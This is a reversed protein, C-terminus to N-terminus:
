PVPRHLERDLEGEYKRPNESDGYRRYREYRLEFTGYKDFTIARDYYYSDSNPDQPAATDERNCLPYAGARRMLALWVRDSPLLERVIGDTESAKAEFGMFNKHWPLTQLLCVFFGCLLYGTLLGVVAAGGQQPAQTYDIVSNALNNTLLRLLALTVIFLFALVFADEYGELATGTFAPDLLDALPEWYNFAVLGAILVNLCMTVATFLGELFFSYAVVLMVIVTLTTLM